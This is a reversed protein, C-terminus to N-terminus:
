VCAGLGSWPNPLSKSVGDKTILSNWNCYAIDGTALMAARVRARPCVGLPLQTLNRDNVAHEFEPRVFVGSRVAHEYSSLGPDSSSFLIDNVIVADMTSKVSENAPDEVAARCLGALDAFGHQQAIRDFLFQKVAMDTPFVPPEGKPAVTAQVAACALERISEVREVACTDAARQLATDALWCITETAVRAKTVARFRRGKVKVRAQPAARLVDLPELVHIPPQQRHHVARLAWTLLEARLWSSIPSRTGGFAVIQIREFPSEAFPEDRRLIFPKPSGGHARFAVLRAVHDARPDCTFRPVRESWTIGGPGFAVNLTCLISALLAFEESKFSRRCLLNAHSGASHASSEGDSTYNNYDTPTHCLPVPRGNATVNTRRLVSFAAELLWPVAEPSTCTVGAVEVFEGMELYFRAVPSFIDLEADPDRPRNPLLERLQNVLDTAARHRAMGHVGIPVLELEVGSHFVDGLCYPEGPIRIPRAAGIANM